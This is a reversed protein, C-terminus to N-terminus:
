KIASLFNAIGRNMAENAKPDFGCCANHGFGSSIELYSADPIAEKAYM